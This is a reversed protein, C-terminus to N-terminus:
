RNGEARKIEPVRVAGKSVLTFCSVGFGAIAKMYNHSVNHMYVSGSKDGPAPKGGCAARTLTNCSAPLLLLLPPTSWKPKIPCLCAIAEKRSRGERRRSISARAAAALMPSCTVPEHFFEAFMQADREKHLERRM